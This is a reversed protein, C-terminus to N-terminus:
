QKVAVTHLSPSLPPRTRDKRLSSVQKTRVSLAFPIFLWLLYLLTKHSSYREARNENESLTMGTWPNLNCMPTPQLNGISLNKSVSPAVLMPNNKYHPNSSRQLFIFTQQPVIHSTIRRPNEHKQIDQFDNAVTSFFFFNHAFSQISRGQSWCPNAM